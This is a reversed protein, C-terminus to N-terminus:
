RHRGTTTKRNHQRRMCVTRVFKVCGTPHSILFLSDVSSFAHLVLFVSTGKAKKAKARSKTGHHGIPAVYM